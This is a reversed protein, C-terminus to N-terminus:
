PAGHVAATLLSEAAKDSLRRPGSWVARLDRSLDVGEVPIEVLSGHRLSEAVALRSLVAPGTGATVSVAVASNSALTLLPNVLSRGGLATELAVRTGSGAERTVLPTQALTDPTLPQGQALPHHPAAVVVLDDRAVRISNLDGPADPAEIFGLTCTGERVADLVAQSNGVAVEIVSATDGRRWSAIWAPLLHEAITQSAMVRLPTPAARDDTHLAAIGAAFAQASELVTRAWGVVLLGEATMTSGTTARRLLPVNLHRELRAISRSANPQAMGVARAGGSLSGHDAIAVLLELASLDPWTSM